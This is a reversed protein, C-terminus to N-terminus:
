WSLVVQYLASRLDLRLATDPTGLIDQHGDFRAFEVKYAVRHQSYRTGFFTMIESDLELSTITQAQYEKGNKILVAAWTARKDTASLLPRSSDSAASLLLYFVIKYRSEDHHQTILIDKQNQSYGFRRAVAEIYCQRADESFWVADFKGITQFEDFVDASRLYRTGQKELSCRKDVQPFQEKGWKYYRVCAPLTSICVVFVYLRRM